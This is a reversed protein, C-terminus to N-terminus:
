FLRKGLKTGNQHSTIDWRESSIHRSIHPRLRRRPPDSLLEEMTAYAKCSYKEALEQAREYVFDYLGVIKADKNAAYEPLHRAQTIRGCGIIGINLM